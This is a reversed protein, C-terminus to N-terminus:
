FKNNNAFVKFLTNYKRLKIIDILNNKYFHTINIGGRCFTKWKSDTIAMAFPNELQNEVYDGWDSNLCPYNYFQRIQLLDTLYDFSRIEVGAEAAIQNRKDNIFDNETRRGIIIRFKLFSNTIVRTSNAPLFKRFFSKDDILFRKWDRIQQLANNLDNSPIGVKTFLPSSPKEIEIFEYQIGNSRKDRINVFDAEYESGLKLKSISLYCNFDSFFFGAHRSIFRHYASEKYNGDLLAQWEGNIREHIAKNRNELSAWDYLYKM